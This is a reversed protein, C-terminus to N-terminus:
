AKGEELNYFENLVEESFNKHATEDIDLYAFFMSKLVWEKFTNWKESTWNEAIAIEKATDMFVKAEPHTNLVELIKKLIEATNM